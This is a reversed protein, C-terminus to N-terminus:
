IAELVACGDRAEGTPVLKGRARLESTRKRVTSFGYAAFEPLAEAEKATLPGHERFAAWVKAQLEPLHDQIDAAAQRSEVPDGRHAMTRIEPAEFLPGWDTGTRQGILEPDDGHHRM